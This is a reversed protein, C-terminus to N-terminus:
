GDPSPTPHAQMEGFPNDVVNYYVGESDPAPWPDGTWSVWHRLELGLERVRQAEDHRDAINHTEFPDAHLDFLIREGSRREIYKYRRDRVGRSPPDWRDLNHKPHEVIQLFVSRRPWMEGGSLLPRISTGHLSPPMALGAADLLTPM